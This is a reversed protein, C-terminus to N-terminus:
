GKIAVHQNAARTILNIESRYHFTASDEGSDGNNFHGLVGGGTVWHEMERSYGNAAKYNMELAPARNGTRPDAVTAMPVMAGQFKDTAGLLNPDNLLKWDHKHFTYGGRTFSKFGLQVALDSDNNFAGFQGALGATVNTSIGSALMDDIALSQKRNLYMAYEAPAGEKDLQLVIDDFEAISDLPSAAANSVVIGRDEIASFYGESGSCGAGSDTAIGQQGFLMMMERKDNFRDRTEQEGKLYWRYEGNGINVWGINTAQSGNVKYKEKIIMFPNVRRILDPEMYATPQVSGQEYLNGIIIMTTDNADAASGDLTFLDATFNAAGEDGGTKKVFYRKGSSKGMLVDNDRVPQASAVTLDIHDGDANALAVTALTHRRGEEWYVVEDQTAAANVAGTLQLFGTIGQDGYTKILLDRNDPKAYLGVLDGLSTYTDPTTRVKPAVAGITMGTPHSISTADITQGGDPQNTITAM